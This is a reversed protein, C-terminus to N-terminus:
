ETQKPEDDDIVVVCVRKHMIGLPVSGDPVIGIRHNGSLDIATEVVGTFFAREEEAM